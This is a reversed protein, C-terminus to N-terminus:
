FVLVFPQQEYLFPCFSSIACFSLDYSFFCTRLLNKECWSKQRKSFKNSARSFSVYKFLDFLSRVDEWDESVDVAEEFEVSESFCRELDDDLLCGGASVATDERATSPPLLASM